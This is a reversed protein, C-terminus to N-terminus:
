LIMLVRKHSSLEAYIADVQARSQAIFHFDVSRYRSNNSFHSVINEELLDPVHRRVIEVVFPEFDEDNAGIVRLPFEIPYKISPANEDTMIEFNYEQKVKAM